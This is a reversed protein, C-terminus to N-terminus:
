CNAAAQAVEIGAVELRAITPFVWETLVHRVQMVNVRSLDLERVEDIVEGNREIRTTAPILILGGDANAFAAVDRALEYKGADQDLQYPAGKADLWNGEPLGVLAGAHGAVVLDRATQREIPGSRAAQLLARAEEAFRAIDSGHRESASIEVEATVYGGWEGDHGVSRFRGSWREMLPALIEAIASEFLEDEYPRLGDVEITVGVARQGYPTFAVGIRCNPNDYAHPNEELGLLWSDCIEARECLESLAESLDALPVAAISSESIVPRGWDSHVRAEDGDPLRVLEFEPDVWLDGIPFEQSEDDPMPEAILHHRCATLRRDESFICDPNSTLDAM